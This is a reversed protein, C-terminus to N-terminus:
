WRGPRDMRPAQIVRAVPLAAAPKASSASGPRKSGAGFMRWSGVLPMEAPKLALGPAAKAETGPRGTVDDGAAQEQQRAALLSRGTAASLGPSESGLLAM